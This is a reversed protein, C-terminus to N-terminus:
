DERPRPVALTPAPLEDVPEVKEIEELLDLPELEEFPEIEDMAQFVEIAEPERQRPAAAPPLAPQAPRQAPAPLAVADPTEQTPEEETPDTSQDVPAPSLAPAPAPQPESLGALGHDTPEDATRLDLEGLGAAEGDAASLQAAGLEGLPRVERERLFAEPDVGTFEAYEQLRFRGKLNNNGLENSCELVNIRGAAKSDVEANPAICVEVTFACPGLSVRSQAEIARAKITGGRFRVVDGQLLRAEIRPGDVRLTGGARLTGVQTPGRVVIDGQTAVVSEADLRGRMQIAGSHALLEQCQLHGEIRVGQAIVRDASVPGRLTITGQTSEIRSISGNLPGEVVVDGQAILAVKGHEVALTLGEPIHLTNAM